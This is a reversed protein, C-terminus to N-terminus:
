RAANDVVVGRKPEQKLLFALGSAIAAFCIFVYDDLSDFCSHMYLVFAIATVAAALPNRGMRKIDNAVAVIILCYPVLGVLGVSSAIELFANHGQRIESGLVEFSTSGGGILPHQLFKEIAASWIFTRNTFTSDRGFLALFWDVIGFNSAASLVCFCLFVLGVAGICVYPNFIMYQFSRRAITLIGYTVIFLLLCILTASSSLVYAEVAFLASLLLTSKPLKGKALFGRVSYVLLFLVMFSFAQNKAGLWYQAAALTLEWYHGHFDNMGYPYFLVITAAELINHIGLLLILATLACWPETKLFFGIILVLAPLFLVFRISLLDGSNLSNALFLGFGYTLSLVFCVTFKYNERVIAKGSILIFLIISLGKLLHFMTNIPVPGIFYSSIGGPLFFPTLLLTIYLTKAWYGNQPKKIQPVM